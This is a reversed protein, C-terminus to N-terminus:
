AARRARAPACHAVVALRNLIAECRRDVDDATRATWHGHRLAILAWTQVEHVAVEAAPTDGARLHDVAAATAHRLPDTLWDRDETPFAASWRRVVTALEGAEGRLTTTKKVPLRMSVNAAM